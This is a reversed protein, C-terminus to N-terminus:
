SMAFNVQKNEKSKRSVLSFYNQFSKSKNSNDNENQIVYEINTVFKAITHIIILIHIMYNVIIILDHITYKICYKM